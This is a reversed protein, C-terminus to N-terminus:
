RRGEQRSGEGGDGRGDWGGRGGLSLPAGARGPADKRMGRKRGKEGRERPPPPPHSPLPPGPPHPDGSRGEVLRDLDQYRFVQDLQNEAALVPQYVRLARRCPAAVLEQWWRATHPDAPRYRCFAEIFPAGPTTDQRMVISSAVGNKFGGSRALQEGHPGVLLEALISPHRQNVLVSAWAAGAYSNMLAEVDPAEQWAMEFLPWLSFPLFNVPLFYYSRGVGHWFFGRVRPAVERVARDVAPTFAPFFTRTVLGLSEYAAGVYGPRSNADCLAVTQAVARRLQPSSPNRPLSKLQTEAFSLGIGAHLMLLSAAPLDRTSPATLIDRPPVGHRFFSEAYDHGLGEVAWLAPFAGLAYARRVLEQLPLPFTDPIGLRQAVTLVLFFVETKDAM